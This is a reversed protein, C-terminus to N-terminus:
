SKFFAVMQDLQHAMDAMSESTASAQEVLAANQQTMQDMHAVATNVQEIGTTQERASNFIQEMMNGVKEIELVISKLTTGSAEVLSSGDEVKRVSDQILEKIEKAASASRQALNRVEGAVVAFGRGQEGARAAEVAANLALLNTQFAIEDIVGIINAIKSSSESIERMADTTAQVSANGERAIDVSSAALQNAERANAESTRVINIMEEMSSATEELSSAQEETRQSLDANGMSIENTGRAINASAEGIESMVKRLKDVTANADEKLKAFEGLYNRDIKQSLDGKALASFIRIIDELAINTTKLLRNLGDSVKLFFGQKNAVSLSRSFDGSAAASILEDIENEVAIEATRDLWEMVVGIRDGESNIIPTSALAFTRKGASIELRRTESSQMLLSQHNRLEHHFSDMSKGLIDGAAFGPTTARFDSEARRLADGLARNAYIVKFEGDAILTSTSSNDLAQRIRANEDAIRKDEQERALRETINEWEIVSGLFEGHEGHIPTASVNFTLKGIPLSLKHSGKLQRMMTRQHNASKHFQDANAGMLKDANFSPIVQRIEGNADHMMLELSQNMYIIKFDEDAIMVATASVDLAQKIVLTRTAQEKAEQAAAAAKEANSQAIAQQELQADNANRVQVVAQNVGKVIAGLQGPFQGKVQGSFDGSALGKLIDGTGTLAVSLNRLLSNFARSTDGVEDRFTIAASEYFNGDREVQKIHESLEVIPRSILRAISVALLSILATFILAIIILSWKMITVGSFAEAKGVEAIVAWRFDDIQFVGFSSLVSDGKFDRIVDEGSEGGFARRTAITDVRGSEPNRFSATVGHNALDHVADSRMLLDEGVLYAEGTEGMGAREGMIENIPDLALQFILVSILENNYYIPTSIFGAPANYSPLYSSFDTISSEGPQLNLARNFARALSSNAYPGTKLSTAFDVEKFVSYVVSGSEPDVLFFDYYGFKELYARFGAHYKTHTRHYVSRGQVADLKNKEGMPYPNRVIYEYQMAIAAPSMQEVLTNVEATKGNNHSSFVKNFETNYFTNVAAKREDLEAPSLDDSSIVRKFSRTFAGAANILMPSEAISLIINRNNQFYREMENIKMQRIAHLKNTAEDHLQSDAVMSALLSVILMPGLGVLLLTYIQKKALSLNMFWNKM